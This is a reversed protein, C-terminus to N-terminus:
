VQQAPAGAPVLWFHFLCWKTKQKQKKTYTKHFSSIMAGSPSIAHSAIWLHSAFFILHEYNLPVTHWRKQRSHAANELNLYFRPRTFVVFFFASRSMGTHNTKRRESQSPCLISNCWRTKLPIKEKLPTQFQGYWGVGGCENCWWCPHHRNRWRNFRSTIEGDGPTPRYGEGQLFEAKLKLKGKTKEKKNWQVDGNFM